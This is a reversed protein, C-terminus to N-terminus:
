HVWELLEHWGKERALARTRDAVVGEPRPERSMEEFAANIKDVTAQRLKRFEKGNVVVSMQSQSVQSREAIEKLSFGMAFLIRVKDIVDETAPDLLADPECNPDDIDAWAGFPSWGNRSAKLQMQKATRGKPSELSLTHLFANRIANYESDSVDEGGEAIRHIAAHDLGTLSAITKSNFGRYYMARIRRTAGVQKGLYNKLQSNNRHM